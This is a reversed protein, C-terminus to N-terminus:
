SCQKQTNVFDDEIQFYKIKLYVKPQCRYVNKVIPKRVIKYYYNYHEPECLFCGNLRVTINSPFFPQASLLSGPGRYM